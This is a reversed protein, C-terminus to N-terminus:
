EFRIRHPCHKKGGTEKFTQGYMPHSEVCEVYEYAANERHLAEALRERTSIKELRERYEPPTGDWNIVRWYLQQELFNWDNLYTKGELTCMYDRLRQPPNDRRLIESYLEGPTHYPKIETALKWICLAELDEHAKNDREFVPHITLRGWARMLAKLCPTPKKAPFDKEDRLYVLVLALSYRTIHEEFRQRLELPTAYNNNWYLVRWQFHSLAQQRTPRDRGELLELHQKFGGKFGNEFGIYYRLADFELKALEINSANHYYGKKFNFSGYQLTGDNTPDTISKLALEESPFTPSLKTLKEATRLSQRLKDVRIHVPCTDGDRLACKGSRCLEAYHRLEPSDPVTTYNGIAKTVGM